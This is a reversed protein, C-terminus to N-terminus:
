FEPKIYDGMKGNIRASLNQMLMSTLAQRMSRVGGEGIGDGISDPDCCTSVLTGSYLKQYIEFNYAVHSLYFAIVGSSIGHLGMASFVTNVGNYVLMSPTMNRVYSGLSEGTGAMYMGIYNFLLAVSYFAFDYGIEGCCNQLFNTLPNLQFYEAGLYLLIAAIQITKRRDSFQMLPLKELLYYIGTLGISIGMAKGIPEGIFSRVKTGLAVAPNYMKPILAIKEDIIYGGGMEGINEVVAGISTTLLVNRSMSKTYAQFDETSIDEAQLKEIQQHIKNLKFCSSIAQNAAKLKKPPTFLVANEKFQYLKELLEKTQEYNPIASFM